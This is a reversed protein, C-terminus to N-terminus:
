ENRNVEQSKCLSCKEEFTDGIFVHLTCGCSKKLIVHDKSVVTKTVDAGM